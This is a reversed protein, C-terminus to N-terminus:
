KRFPIPEGRQCHMMEHLVDDISAEIYPGGNNGNEYYWGEPMLTIVFPQHRVSLDSLLFTVYYHVENRQGSQEGARLLYLYPIKHNRISKEADLGSIDGHWADHCEIDKLITGDMMNKLIVSM